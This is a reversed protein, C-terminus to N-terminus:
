SPTASGAQEYLKSWHYEYQAPTLSRTNELEDLSQALADIKRIPGYISPLRGGEFKVTIIRCPKLLEKAWLHTALAIAAWLTLAAALGAFAGAIGGVSILVYFALISCPFWGLNRWGRNMSILKAERRNTGPPFIVLSINGRGTATLLQPLPAEYRGWKQTTSIGADIAEKPSRAM